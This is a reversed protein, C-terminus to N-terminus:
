RKVAGVSGVGDLDRGRARFRGSLIRAARVARTFGFEAYLNRAAINSPRVELFLRQAAYERATDIFHQLLARGYGRRQWAAAVSLNLLHAEDVGIMLVGYGTLYGSCEMIWCSYGANLSDRFNGITWPHTYIEREIGLVGNLDTLRMPRYVPDSSLVASM